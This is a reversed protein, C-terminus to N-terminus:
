KSGGEMKEIFDLIKQTPKWNENEMEKLRRAETKMMNSLNSLTDAVYGDKLLSIM